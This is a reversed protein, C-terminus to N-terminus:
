QSKCWVCEPSFLMACSTVKSKLKVTANKVRDCNATGAAGVIAVQLRFPPRAVTHPTPKTSTTAAYLLVRRLQQGAGKRCCTECRDPVPNECFGHTQANGSSSLIKPNAVSANVAVKQPRRMYSFKLDVDVFTHIKKLIQYRNRYHPPFPHILLGTRISLYPM